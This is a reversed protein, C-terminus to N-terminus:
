AVSVYVRYGGKKVITDVNGFVEKMHMSLTEGGKNHRAVLQLNGGKLLHEKCEEIMKFCVKKGATQPPNLLIVNFKGEVNEFMDSQLVKVNKLRKTNMKALKVARENVDILVVEKCMEAVIRGVIGIGCGFDLVRDTENVVMNNVLVKTGFDLKSKSFVGSGTFFNYSKGNAIVSIEKLDLASTPKKSFYHETM